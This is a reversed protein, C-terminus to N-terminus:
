ANFAAIALGSPSITAYSSPEFIGWPDNLAGFFHYHSPWTAGATTWTGIYSSAGGYYYNQLLSSTRVARRLSNLYNIGNIYTVTASSATYTGFGSSDVDIQVKLPDSGVNIAKVVWGPQVTIQGTGGSPSIPSGGKTASVELSVGANVSVIYYTVGNVLNAPLTSSTNGVTFNVGQGVIATGTYPIDAGSIASVNQSQAAGTILSGWTGGAAGTVQFMMGVAAANTPSNSQATGLNNGTIFATPMTLVAGTADNTAATVVSTSNGAADEADSGGEYGQLGLTYTPGTGWPGAFYTATGSIRTALTALSGTHMGSVTYSALYTTMAGANGNVAFDYALPMEPPWGYFGPGFYGATCGNTAYMYGPNKNYGSQAPASQAAYATAKLRPDNLTPVGGNSERVGLYVDYKTTNGGFVTNADQGITSIVKGYWNDHDFGANTSSPSPPWNIYSKNWAYRTAFFNPGSNWTENPGEIGIMMWPANSAAYNKGATMLQAIYDTMPEAALFPTVFWCHAGVEKCLRFMLSPPVGNIIGGGNSSHKWLLLSNMAADFVVTSYSANDPQAGATAADGYGIKIPVPTNGNISLTAPRVFTAATAGTSQRIIDAGGATLSLNFTNADVVTGVYVTTSFAIPNPLQTSGSTPFGVLPTGSSFGHAPWAVQLAGSGVTGSLTVNKQMSNVLIAYTGPVTADSQSAALAYTFTSAGTSTATFNGNYATATVGAIIVPFLLGTPVNHPSATTVTATGGSWTLTSNANATLPFRLQITQKDTFNGSGVTIAYDQTSGTASTPPGTGVTVTPVWRNLDWWDGAYSVYTEPKSATDWTTVNSNNAGSSGGQWDLFRIKGVRLTDRLLSIFKPSFVAGADYAAEEDVYMAEIESVPTSGTVSFGLQVNPSSIATIAIEAPTYVYRGGTTGALLSNTVTGGSVYAGFGSSDAGTLTITTTTTSAIQYTHGNFGTFPAAFTSLAVVQGARYYHPSGVTLTVTTSNNAATVNNSVATGASGTLTWSGIWRVVIPTTGRASPNVIPANQRTGTAGVPLSTAYGNADQLSPSVIFGNNADASSITPLTATKALNIFPVAAFNLQSMNMQSQGGNFGSSPALAAAINLIGVTM